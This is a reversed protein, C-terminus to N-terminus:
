TGVISRHLEEFREAIRRWGYHQKVHEHGAISIQHRELDAMGLAVLLSKEIGPVNPETRLSIGAAALGPMNCPDSIIPLLGFACAELVAMPLGESHSPLIFDTSESLVNEKAVGFVAGVFRANAAQRAAEEVHGVYAPDGWGAIVLQANERRVADEINRWAQILELVAKKEHLRGLFLFQRRGAAARRANAELVFSTEPTVVGNPIVEIRCRPLLKSIADAEATNLARFAAAARWNSSEYVHGAISKKWRGRSLIWPDLMGHPSIILPTDRLIRRIRIALGPFMWIGHLQIIDTKITCVDALLGPSFRFQEPGLYRHLRPSIPAWLPADTSTYADLSSICEVHCGGHAGIAVALDRVSSQLGGGARSAWASVMTVTQYKM